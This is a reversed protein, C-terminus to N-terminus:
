EMVDNLDMVDTIQRPWSIPLGHETRFVKDIFNKRCEDYRRILRCRLESISSTVQLHGDASQRLQNTLRAVEDDWCYFAKMIAGVREV